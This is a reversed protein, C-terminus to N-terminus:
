QAKPVVAQISNPAFMTVSNTKQSQTMLSRHPQSLIQKSLDQQQILNFFITTSFIEGNTTTKAQHQYAHWLTTTGKEREKPSDAMSIAAM